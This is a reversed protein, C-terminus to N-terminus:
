ACSRTRAGTAADARYTALTRQDRSQVDFTLGGARTWVARVLYPFREADWGVPRSAGTEADLIELAIRANQAAPPRIASRSRPPRPTPRTPSRGSRCRGSTPASSSCGARTRTGGCAPSAASSRPRSSTPGAWSRTRTPRALAALPAGPDDPSVITVAGDVLMALLRGDPSLLPEDAGPPVALESVEGAAWTWLGGAAFVLRDLAEDATFATIGTALERTRERM